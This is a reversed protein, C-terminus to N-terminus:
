MGTDVVTGLAAKFLGFSSDIIMDMILLMPCYDRYFLEEYTKLV